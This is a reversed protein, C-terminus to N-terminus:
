RKRTASSCSSGARRRGESRARSGAPAIIKSSDPARDVIDGNQFSCRGARGTGIRGQKRDAALAPSGAWADHFFAFLDGGRRNARASRRSSFDALNRSPLVLPAVLILALGHRQLETSRVGGKCGRKQPARGGKKDVARRACSAQGQERAPSRRPSIATTAREGPLSAPGCVRSAARRKAPITRRM